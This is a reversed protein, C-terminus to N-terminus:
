FLRLINVKKSSEEQSSNAQLLQHSIDSKEQTLTEIKDILEQVFADDFDVKSKDRKPKVVDSNDGAM